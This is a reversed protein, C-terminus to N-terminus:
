IRLGIVVVDDVQEENGRWDSFAQKLIAMQEEMPKQSNELILRKFPKYKFKKGKPGGFQDAYGDSFMYLTDGKKLHLDINTFEDMKEYIAIPMKDPKLDYLIQEHGEDLIKADSVQELMDYKSVIYLPNNAGSFQIHGSKNISILSMDMGDKQEGAIGKQDLTKIIEARLKGLITSPKTVSEKIVIEKLFSVGLMSMFAGPVGHGTCDAATIITQENVETWWYYDGSVKDKPMFLVFFDTLNKKLLDQKPLIAGQLRKAYDISESVERHIEEIEDKQETVLDKQEEIEDRQAAIEENQQNLEENAEQIEEKQKSLLRNAKQKQKYGRLIFFILFSFLVLGIGSAWLYIRQKALREEDLEKDKVLLDNGAKLLANEKERKEYNWKKELEAFDSLMKINDLSDKLLVHRNLYNYALSFDGLQYQIMALQYESDSLQNVLKHKRALLFAKRSYTKSQEYKKLALLRKAINFLDKWQGQINGIEKNIAYSKKFYSIANVSDLIGLNSYVEAMRPKENFSKAIKLSVLYYSKALSDAESLSSLKSDVIKYNHELTDLKEYINGINMNLIGVAYTYNLSDAIKLSKKFYSLAEKYNNQDYYLSGIGNYVSAMGKYDGIKEKLETSELYFQVAKGAENKDSYVKGIKKLVESIALSDNKKSYIDKIKKYYELAGTYNTKRFEIQAGYDYASALFKLDKHVEGLRIFQKVFYKASDLDQKLYYSSLQEYAEYKLQYEANKKTITILSDVEIAQASLSFLLILFIPTKM